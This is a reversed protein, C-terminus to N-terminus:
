SGAASAAAVIGVLGIFACAVLAPKVISAVLNERSSVDVGRFFLLFVQFFFRM